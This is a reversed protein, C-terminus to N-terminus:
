AARGVGHKEDALSHHQATAFGASFATPTLKQTQKMVFLLKENIKYCIM